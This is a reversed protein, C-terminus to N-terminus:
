VEDQAQRIDQKLVDIISPNAKHRERDVCFLDIKHIDLIHRKANSARTTALRKGCERGNVTWKCRMGQTGNERPEVIVYDWVASRFKRMNRQVIAALM